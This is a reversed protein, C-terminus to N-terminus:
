RWQKGGNRICGRDKYDNNKYGKVEMIEGENYEHKHSNKHIGRYQMIFLPIVNM